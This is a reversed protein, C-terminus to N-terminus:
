AAAKTGSVIFATFGYLLMGRQELHALQTWWADAQEPQLESKKVMRAVHGGLMLQLFEWTCPVVMYDTRVDTLGAERFLRPLSRGIWGNSFTDCYSLAIKRTTEKESSDCFQTEWDFDQVVLCGQPRLVRAMESLAPKAAALHMFLREARVADFSADAFPLAQVDAVEFKM